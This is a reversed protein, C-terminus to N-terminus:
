LGMKIAFEEDKHIPNTDGSAKAYNLLDNRNFPNEVRRIIQGVEFM